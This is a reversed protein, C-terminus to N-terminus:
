YQAIVRNSAEIADCIEVRYFRQPRYDFAIVHIASGARVPVNIAKM